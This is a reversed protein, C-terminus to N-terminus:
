EQLQVQEDWLENLAESTIELDEIWNTRVALEHFGQNATKIHSPFYDEWAGINNEEVPDEGLPEKNAEAEAKSPSKFGYAMYDDYNILRGPQIDQAYGIFTDHPFYVEIGMESAKGMWWEMGPRQRFYETELQELECGYFEIRDWDNIGKLKELMVQAIMYCFTSTFYQTVYGSGRPLRDGIFTECIERLPIAESGPIDAYARQMFIRPVDCNQLWHWHDDAYRTQRRTFRWRHHVQYWRDFLHMKDNKQFITASDNLGWWEDIGEEHWPALPGSRSHTGMMVVTKKGARQRMRQKIIIPHEYVIYPYTHKPEGGSSSPKESSKHKIEGDETYEITTVSNCVPCQIPHAGPETPRPLRVQIDIFNPDAQPGGHLGHVSKRHSGLAHASGFVQACDPCVKKKTKTM